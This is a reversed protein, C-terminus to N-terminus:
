ANSEALVHPYYYGKLSPITNSKQCEFVQRLPNYMFGMDAEAFAEAIDSPIIGDHAYQEMRASAVSVFVHVDVGFGNHMDRNNLTSRLGSQSKRYDTFRREGVFLRFTQKDGTVKIHSIIFDNMTDYRVAGGDSDLGNCIAKKINSPYCTVILNSQYRSKSRELTTPMVGDLFGCGTIPPPQREKKRGKTM